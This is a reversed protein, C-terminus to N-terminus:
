GAPGPYALELATDHERAALTFFEAMEPGQFDKADLDDALTNLDQEVVITSPAAINAAVGTASRLRANVAFRDALQTRRHVHLEFSEAGDLVQDQWADRCFHRALAAGPTEHMAVRIVIAALRGVRLGFFETYEALFPGAAAYFDALQIQPAAPDPRVWYLDIRPGSLECRWMTSASLLAFRLGDPSPAVIPEADFRRSWRPFLDRLFRGTALQHGPTYASAQCSQVSFAAASVTRM